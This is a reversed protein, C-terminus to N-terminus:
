SHFKQMMMEFIKLKESYAHTKVFLFDEPRFNKYFNSNKKLTNKHASFNKIALLM